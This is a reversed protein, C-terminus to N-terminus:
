GNKSHLLNKHLQLFFSDVLDFFNGEDLLFEVVFESPHVVMFIVLAGRLTGFGDLECRLFGM